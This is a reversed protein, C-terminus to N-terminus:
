GPKKAGLIVTVWNYLEREERPFAFMFREMVVYPHEFVVRALERVDLKWFNDMDGRPAELWEFGTDQIVLYNCYIFESLLLITFLLLLSSLFVM